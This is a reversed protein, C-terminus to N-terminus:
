PRSGRSPRPTRGAPRARCQRARPMAPGAMARHRRGSRSRCCAAPCPPPPMVSATCDPSNKRRLISSDSRCGAQIMMPSVVGRSYRPSNVGSSFESAPPGPKGGPWTSSTNTGPMRTSIAKPAPMPAPQGTMQSSSEPTISRSRTVGALRRAIKSPVTARSMTINTTGPTTTMRTAVTAPKWACQPPRMRSSARSESRTVAQEAVEDASPRARFCIPLRAATTVPVCSGSVRSDPM